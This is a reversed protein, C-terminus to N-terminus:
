FGAPYLKGTSPGVPLQHGNGLSRTVSLCSTPSRATDTRGEAHDIGESADSTLHSEGFSRNTIANREGPEIASGPSHIQGGSFFPGSNAKNRIRVFERWDLEAAFNSSIRRIEFIELAVSVFNEAICVSHRLSLSEFGRYGKPYM